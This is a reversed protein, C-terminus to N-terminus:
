VRPVGASFNDIAIAPAAGLWSHSVYLLVGVDGSRRLASPTADTSTLLWSQPEQGQPRWVKARLTTTGTGGVVFRARLVDGPEVTLGAVTTDALVTDTGGVIRVLYVVVSGGPMYRLKLRYDNGDSVRRGILSVYAGGGSATRQLAVDTRLDIDAQRVGTLYAARNKAVAGSIRGVGNAVSFSSAAGSV